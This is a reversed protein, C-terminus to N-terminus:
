QGDPNVGLKSYCHAVFRAQAIADDDARHHVGVYERIADIVKKREAHVPYAMQGATRMSRNCSFHLPWMEGCDAYATRLIVVDFDPDNAWCLSPRNRTEHQFWQRFTVLGQKLNTVHGDFLGMQAETSQKLWWEVTGAEIRRGWEENSTLSIRTLFTESIDQEEGAFPDFTCAGITVISADYTTAMTEIDVMLHEQETGTM